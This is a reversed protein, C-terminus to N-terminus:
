QKWSSAFFKPIEDATPVFELTENFAYNKTYTFLPIWYAEEAIRRLAQEYAALRADPDAASDGERIAAQVEPDNAPDDSGGGFFYSTIASVDPISNSGWTMNAIPVEGKVILDRLAAYKMWRLNATIGVKALDDMIAETVPRDRYGYFEVSFGDPYGAEALQARAKDPDYAYTAVDATCGFQVPHCAANVVVSNEGMLYTAIRERNVAYGIAQRVAADTFVNTGSTGKIDFTIYSIRMTPANLTTIGPAGSLGATQDNGLGWIWDVGGTMLEAVQTSSDAITRYVLTDIEPQGKPGDAFYDPNKVMTVTEGQAFDAVTYPGTGNPPVAAYRKQGDAGEEAADYHGDPLIPLVLALNSLLAPFPETLTLTVTHEGTQEASKFWRVDSSNLIGSDDGTVFTFTYIVDEPGFTSGDHFTVDDRLDFEWTVPDLQRFSTALLPLFEENEEDWYILGDYVHQSLIVAERSTDYYTEVAAVEKPGAWVLSNDAPGAMAPSDLVLCVALATGTVGLITKSM